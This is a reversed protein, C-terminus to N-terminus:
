NTKIYESLEGESIYEDTKYAQDDVTMYKDTWSSIKISKDNANIVFINYGGDADERNIEDNNVRKMKIKSLKDYIKRLDDKDTISEGTRAIEVSSIDNFDIGAFCNEQSQRNLLFIGGLLVVIVILLMSIIKKM